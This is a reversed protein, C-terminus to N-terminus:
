KRKTKLSGRTEMGKMIKEMFEKVLDAKLLGLGFGGPGPGRVVLLLDGPKLNFDKRARAPIVIQGREGVKVTGYIVFGEMIDNM